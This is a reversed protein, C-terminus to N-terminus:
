GSTKKVELYGLHYVTLRAHIYIISTFSFWEEKRTQKSKKGIDVATITDPLRLCSTSEWESMDRGKESSCYYIHECRPKCHWHSVSAKETNYFTHFTLGTALDKSIKFDYGYFSVYKLNNKSVCIISVFTECICEFIMAPLIFKKNTQM